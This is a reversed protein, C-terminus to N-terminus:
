VVLGFIALEGRCDHLPRPYGGPLLLGASRRYPDDFVVAVQEATPAGALWTM